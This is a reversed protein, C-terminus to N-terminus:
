ELVMPPRKHGPCCARGERLLGTQKTGRILAEDSATDLNLVGIGPYNPSRV